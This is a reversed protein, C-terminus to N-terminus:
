KKGGKKKKSKSKGAPKADPDEGQAIALARKLALLKQVEVDIKEKAAKETKLKRVM